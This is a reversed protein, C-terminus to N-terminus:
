FFRLAGSLCKDSQEAAPRTFGIFISGCHSVAACINGRRGYIGIWRHVNALLTSIFSCLFICNERYKWSGTTWLSYNNHYWVEYVTYFADTRACGKPRFSVIPHTFVAIETTKAAIDRFCYFIHSM